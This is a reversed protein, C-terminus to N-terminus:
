QALSFDAYRELEAWVDQTERCILRVDEADLSDVSVNLLSEDYISKMPKYTLTQETMNDLCKFIDRDYNLACKLDLLVVRSSHMKKLKIVLLNHARWMAISQQIDVKLLKVQSPSLSPALRSRRLLSSVVEVPDRYVIVSRVLPSFQFWAKSFIISRPDKWGWCDFSKRANLLSEAVGRDEDQFDLFESETVKWGKCDPYKRILMKEHFQVWSEDEFHGKNNWYTAPMLSGFNLLVGLSELWNALLSTGSRHMGSILFISKM